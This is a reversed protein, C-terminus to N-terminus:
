VKPPVPFIMEAFCAYIPHGCRACVCTLTGKGTRFYEEGFWREKHGFKKCRARAFGVRARKILMLPRM